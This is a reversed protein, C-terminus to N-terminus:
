DNDQGEVPVLELDADAQTGDVTELESPDIWEGDATEWEGLFEIFDTAPEEAVTEDVAYVLTTVHAMVILMMLSVRCTM